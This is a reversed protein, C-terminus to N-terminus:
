RWSNREKKIYDPGYVGRMMGRIADSYKAPREIIVMKGSQVTVLLKDGAKVGMAERAEKPIVIQNKSSIKVEAM